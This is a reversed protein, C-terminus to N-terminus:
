YVHNVGHAEGLQILQNVIEPGEFKNLDIKSYQAILIGHIIQRALNADRKNLYPVEVIEGEALKKPQIKLTAFFLSSEVSVHDIMDYPIAIVDASWFFQRLVFSVKALDIIVDHRFLTFPWISRICLLPVEVQNILKKLKQKEKTVEQPSAQQNIVLQDEPIFDRKAKKTKQFFIEGNAKM